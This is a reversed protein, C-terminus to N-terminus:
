GTGTTRKLDRVVALAKGDAADVLRSLQKEAGEYEALEKRLARLHKRVAKLERKASRVAEGPKPARTRKSPQLQTKPAPQEAPKPPTVAVGPKIACVLAGCSGCAEELQGDKNSRIIAQATSGCTPCNV